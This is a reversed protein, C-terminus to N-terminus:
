KVDTEIYQNYELIKWGRTPSFWSFWPNYECTTIGANDAPNFFALKAYGAADLKRRYLLYSLLIQLFAHHPVVCIRNARQHELYTLCKEARKTLDIFNEEDSYRYTNEHFGKEILGTIHKVEPDNVSKNIVEKPNHRESLLSTYSIAVRLYTNIILATERARDYSSSCIANIKPNEVNALARGVVHAQQIGAESLSGEAGQKIGADNLITRGHRIFYIRKTM